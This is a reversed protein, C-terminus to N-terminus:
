AAILKRENNKRLKEKDQRIFESILYKENETLPTPDFTVDLDDLKIKKWQKFYKEILKLAAETNIIM